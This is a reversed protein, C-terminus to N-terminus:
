SRAPWSLRGLQDDDEATAAITIAGLPWQHTGSGRAEGIDSHQRAVIRAALLRGLDDGRHDAPAIATAGVCRASIM